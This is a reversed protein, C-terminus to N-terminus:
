VPLVPLTNLLLVGAALIGISIVALVDLHSAKLRTMRTRGEGGRYCRCEMAEALDHARRFSSIFLPIIIPILSKIRKILNGSEFDAGRARQANMIKDTEEILTPVFRLAITMMMALEHVKLKFVKLPSLLRELGDTLSTPTTTYTLLSSSVILCAIRIVIFAGFIVGEKYVTIFGIKFLVQGKLYFANLLSTIIIIPIIPKLSKLVTKLPVQSLFILFVLVLIIFGMSLGNQCLFIIVIFLLTLILKVRPDLRHLVSNGPFYQGITINNLM